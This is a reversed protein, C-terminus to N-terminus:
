PLNARAREVATRIITADGVENSLILVLRALFLSQRDAGVDDLAAAVVQFAQEVCRERSRPQETTM